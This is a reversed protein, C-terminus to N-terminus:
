TNSLLGFQTKYQQNMLLNLKLRLKQSAIKVHKKLRTEYFKTQKQTKFASKEFILKIKNKERSWIIKKQIKLDNQHASIL